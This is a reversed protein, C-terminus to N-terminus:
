VRKKPWYLETRIQSPAFGRTRLTTEAASIMDPHGCLYAVVNEPHLGLEDCVPGVISEVRGRRGQWDANEPVDPRSVTPVYRLPYGGSGEWNELIARYGLEREYSVGHLLVTRRPTADDHLTRLMAMFPAIGCGSAIFLHTRTDGPELTFRGKPGRMALGDGRRLRFLLPTLAGDPVLRIYFEYGTQPQRASSAISYPRQVLTGGSALGLASYQGPLFPVTADVFRCRFIALGASLDDRYTLLANYPSDSAMPRASPKEGM